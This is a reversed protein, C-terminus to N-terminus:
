NVGPQLEALRQRAREAPKWWESAEYEQVQAYGYDRVVTTFATIAGPKDGKELLIEGKAWLVAAVNNLASYKYAAEPPDIPVYDSLSAQMERAEEGYVEVAKDAYALAKDPEGKGWHHFVGWMLNGLSGDGFDVSRTGGCGATLALGFTLAVVPLFIQLRM